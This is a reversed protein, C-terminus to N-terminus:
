LSHDCFNHVKSIDFVGRKESYFAKGLKRWRDFMLLLREGGCPQGPQLSLCRNAITCCVSSTMRLAAPHLHSRVGMLEPMHMLVLPQTLCHIPQM